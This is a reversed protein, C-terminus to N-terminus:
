FKSESDDDISAGATDEEASETTKYNKEFRKRRSRRALM